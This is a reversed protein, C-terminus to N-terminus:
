FCRAKKQRAFCQRGKERNSQVGNKGGLTGAKKKEAVRRNTRPRDTRQRTGKTTDQNLNLKRERKWPSDGKEEDHKEKPIEENSVKEVGGRKPREGGFVSRAHPRTKQRPDRNVTM